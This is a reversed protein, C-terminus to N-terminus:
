HMMVSHSIHGFVSNKRAQIKGCESQISLSVEYVEYRETNLGFVHFYPSSFYGYRSVKWATHILFKKLILFFATQIKVLISVNVFNFYRM